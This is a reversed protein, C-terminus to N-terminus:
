AAVELGLASIESLDLLHPIRTRPDLQLIEHVERKGNPLRRLGIVLDIADHLQRKAFDEGIAVDSMMVMAVLRDLAQTVGNAHCTTLSGAHGTSMAQLLDFAEGGRVEGVVLRDPRMRLSAKVLDRIDINGVGEANAQRCELSVVQSGSICLEATDEITIIREHGAQSALANLLSTKGSGTSGAIVMSRKAKVQEKLWRATTGCAFDEVSFGRTNFRRISLFPGGIALPPVVIHVRSGNGLRTDLIPSTRDVRVGSQATIQEIIRWLSKEDVRYPSKLIQGNMEVMVWGPGNMLIDTVENLESLAEIPGLGFLEQTIRKSLHFVGIEENPRSASTGESVGSPLFAAQLAIRRALIQMLQPLDQLVELPETEALDRSLRFVLDELHWTSKPWM